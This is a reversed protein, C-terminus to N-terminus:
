KVSIILMRVTHDHTPSTGQYAYLVDDKPIILEGATNLLRALSVRDKIDSLNPKGGIEISGVDDFLIRVTEKEDVLKVTTSFPVNVTVVKIM